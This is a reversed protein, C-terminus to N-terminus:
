HKMFSTNAHLHFQMSIPTLLLTLSAILRQYFRQSWLVRSETLLLRKWVHLCTKISEKVHRFLALQVNDAGKLAGCLALVIWRLSFLPHFCFLHVNLRINATGRTEFTAILATFAEATEVLVGFSHYFLLSLSVLIIYFTNQISGYVTYWEYIYTNTYEKYVLSDVWQTRVDNRLVRNSLM